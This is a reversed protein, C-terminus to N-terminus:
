QYIGTKTLIERFYRVGILRGVHTQGSESFIKKRTFSFTALLLQLSSTSVDKHRYTEHTVRASNEVTLTVKHRATVRSGSSTNPQLKERGSQKVTSTLSRRLLRSALVCNFGTHKYLIYRTFCSWISYVM